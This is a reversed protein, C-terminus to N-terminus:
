IGGPAKEHRAGKVVQELGGQDIMSRLLRQLANYTPDNEQVDADEGDCVMKVSVDERALDNAAKLQEYLAEEAAPKAAECAAKTDFTERYELKATQGTALVVLLVIIKVM